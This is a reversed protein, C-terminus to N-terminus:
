PTDFDTLPKDNDPDTQAKNTYIVIQGDNDDGFSAQPCVKLIETALQNFTM